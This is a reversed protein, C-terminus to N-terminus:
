ETAFFHLVGSADCALMPTEIGTGVSYNNSATINDGFVLGKAKFAKFNSYAQNDQNGPTPVGSGADQFDTLMLFNDNNILKAGKSELGTTLLRGFVITADGDVGYATGAADTNLQIALDNTAFNSASVFTGGGQFTVNDNLTINFGNDFPDITNFLEGAQDLKTNAPLNLVKFKFLYMADAAHAFDANTDPTFQIQAYSYSNNIRVAPDADTYNTVKMWYSEDDVWTITSATTNDIEISYTSEETLDYAGTADGDLATTFNGSGQAIAVSAGTILASDLAQDIVFSGGGFTASDGSHYFAGEVTCDGILNTAGNTTLSTFTAAAAVSGGIISNNVTGGSITLDDAIYTDAIAGDASTWTGNVITGVQTINDQVADPLTSSISPVSSGDTVLTGNVASAISSLNDATTTYLLTKIGGFTSLGTGGHAVAVDTAAWTGSAITGVTALSSASTMSDASIINDQSAALTVTAVQSGSSGEIGITADGGMAMMDYKSASSDYIMIDNGALGETTTDTDTLAAFTTVVDKWELNADGSAIHLAQGADGHVRSGEVEAGAGLALDTAIIHNLSTASADEGKTNSVLVKRWAGAM